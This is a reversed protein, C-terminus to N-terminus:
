NSLHFRAKNSNKKKKVFPIAIDAYALTWGLYAKGGNRRTFHGYMCFHYHYPLTHRFNFKQMTRSKCYHSDSKHFGCQLHGIRWVSKM